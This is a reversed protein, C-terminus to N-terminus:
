FYEVWCRCRIVNSASGRPDGPYRLREGNITFDDKINVTQGHAARHGVRVRGDARTVWKKKKKGTSLAALYRANNSVKLVENQAIQRARKKAQKFFENLKDEVARIIEKLSKDINNRVSIAVIREIMELTSKNLLAATDAAYGKLWQKVLQKAKNEAKFKYGFEKLASLLMTYVLAEEATGIDKGIDDSETWIASVIMMVIVVILKNTEEDDEAKSVLNKIEKRKQLDQLKQRISTYQANLAKEAVKETNGCYKVLIKKEKESYGTENFFRANEKDLKDIVAKCMLLIQRKM